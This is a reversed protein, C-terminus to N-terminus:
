LHYMTQEGLDISVNSHLNLFVTHGLDTSLRVCCSMMKQWGYGFSTNCSESRCGGERRGRGAVQSACAVETTGKGRCADTAM